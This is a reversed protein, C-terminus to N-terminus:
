FNDEINYGSIPNSQVIGNNVVSENNSTPSAIPAKGFVFGNPNSGSSGPVGNLNLQGAAQSATQMAFGAISSTDGSQISNYMTTAAQVGGLVQALAGTGKAYAQLDKISGGTDNIMGGQSFVSNRGQNTTISSAETDYHAPDAFGQVISSPQEAGINGTYYKVAEYEITVDNQMTGSGERYDYTDSNWQQIIPNILTWAAFTKQSMGYITIDRFFAPKGGSGVSFAVNTGDNPSEGVFGWNATQITQSYIDNANYNFGNFYTSIKGLTGSTTPVGQYQQTPDAYYYTYYNYWMTRIVDDQDDHFTIKSPEYHIKTQVLRKRNYQNLATTDIKFKPLDISKVMLGITSVAGSGYIAQLQPIQATNINFFVHFLFKYRPILGYGNTLFTKAAHTYDKLLPSTAPKLFSNGQGFYSM